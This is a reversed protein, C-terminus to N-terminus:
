LAFIEIEGQRGRLKHRGLSTAHFEPGLDARTTESILIAVAAGKPGIVKAIQEIRQAANVMDGIVTYNIRGSWGINGVTADGSHIGIRMRVPHEGRARRVANDEEIAARIMLAARCAREARNKLKEPAGWFAMVADGIYKDVIGGEAEICTGVLGFHRNLLDAVAAASQGQSWTSFGVIDTFMVTLHRNESEVAHADGSKLLHRALPKPVYTEFWRLAGTMSNFARAQEDIERIRSPPLPELDAINLEGVKAAAESIRRVPRALRRGLMVAMVIAGLIAGFGAIMAYILRNIIESFDSTRVYFGVILPKDSYGELETYIVPYTEGGVALTRAQVPPAPGFLRRRYHREDWLVALVPDGFNQLSPLPEEASPRWNRAAMAGHALVRDRGYLIFATGGVERGIRDVYASLEQTSIVGILGGVVQSDRIVPQAHAIMTQNLITNFVPPTWGPKRSAWLVRALQSMRPQNSIDVEHVGIGESTRVAGRATLDPRMYTLVRLQPLGAIAGVLFADFEAQRSPNMRGAEIEDVMLKLQSTPQDLHDRLRQQMLKIAQESRNRLLDITNESASWFAFGFIALMAIVLLGGFNAVLAWVVSIRRRERRTAPSTPLPAVYPVPAEPM